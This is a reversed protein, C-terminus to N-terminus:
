PTQWQWVNWTLQPAIVRPEVGTVRDPDFATLSPFQYLPAGYFDSRLQEDVDGLLETREAADATTALRAYLEDVTDNSYGNLNNRADTAYRSESDVVGLSSSEWAFIAADYKGPVGLLDRWKETGCDSVRFGAKDASAQILSFEAARRPNNGAYLICVEPESAGAEALLAKADSIDVQDFAAGGGSVDAGPEGPTFVFSDRTTARSGVIPRILDDIIAERPLTMLFAERVLPDDFTDHASSGFQLDIHEFSAVAGTLTTIGGVDGLQNAVDPTAQPSIVDVDGNELATVEDAPGDFYRMTVAAISPTRAGDYQPNASLTVGTEADISDIVYPGSSLYVDEPSEVNDLAFGTNWFSSVRSLASTDDNTIADVIASKGAEASEAGLASQAVVHAPLPAPLAIRWDAIPEDYTVTMSRGGDSIHPLDRALGLGSDPRTGSDFYVTDDPLSASSDGSLASRYDAPDFGETNLAGSHAAWDLLLDAVDVPTGDSWSASDSLSYQVVLPDDNIKRISGFSPDEAITLNEDYATFNSLTMATVDANGSAAGASTTTNYSSFRDTTGITVSSASDPGTPACGSVGIAAAILM